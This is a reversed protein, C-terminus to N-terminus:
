HRSVPDDGCLVIKVSTGFFFFHTILSLGELASFYGWSFKDGGGRSSNRRASERKKEKM